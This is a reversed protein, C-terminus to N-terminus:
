NLPSAECLSRTLARFQYGDAQASKIYLSLTKLFGPLRKIPQADHLLIIEGSVSATLSRLARKEDWPLVTDFFRREWLILPLGLQRLAWHLEPTRVGAPPRFGVNPGGITEALLTESQAIWDLMGSKGAFFSAYRHDLSHNGIAHGRARIEDVLQRKAAAKRAVVFFTAPVHCAELAELVEPTSDSNPGDDFTLYLTKAETASHHIRRVSPGLLRDLSAHM